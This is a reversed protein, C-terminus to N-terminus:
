VVRVAKKDLATANMIVITWDGGNQIATDVSTEIKAARRSREACVRACEAVGMEAVRVQHM